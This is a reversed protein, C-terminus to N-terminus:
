VLPPLITLPIPVVPAVRLEMMLADIAVRSNLIRTEERVTGVLICGETDEITNGSHIRVGDFGPVKLLLPLIRHFRTSETLVVEYTGCPIATQKSIKVDRIKDELTWCQWLGNIYLSGFTRGNVSPERQLHLRM